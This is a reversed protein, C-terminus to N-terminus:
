CTNTKSHLAHLPELDSANMARIDGLNLTLTDLENCSDVIVLNCHKLYGLKLEVLSDFDAFPAQDGVITCSCLLLLQLRKFVPKSKVASVASIELSFMELEELTDVCYETVCNWLFLEDSRDDEISFESLPSGFNKLIREIDQSPRYKSQLYKRSSVNYNGDGGIYIYIKLDKPFVRQVIQKFRKCTDAISFLDM